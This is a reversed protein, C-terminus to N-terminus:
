MHYILNMVYCENKETWFMYYCLIKKIGSVFSGVFTDPLYDAREAHSPRIAPAVYGVAWLNYYANHLLLERM